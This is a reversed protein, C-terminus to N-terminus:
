FLVNAECNFCAQSCHMFDLSSIWSNTSSSDPNDIIVCWIIIAMLIQCCLPLIGTALEAEVVALHPSLPESRSLLLIRRPVQNLNTHETIDRIWQCHIPLNSSARKFQPRCQWLDANIEEHRFAYCIAFCCRSSYCCDQLKWWTRSQFSSVPLVRHWASFVESRSWALCLPLRRCRKEGEPVGLWAVIIVIIVRLASSIPGVLPFSTSAALDQQWFSRHPEVQSILNIWGTVGTQRSQSIERSTELTQWPLICIARWPIEGGHCHELIPM